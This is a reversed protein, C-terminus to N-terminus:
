YRRRKDFRRASRSAVKVEPPRWNNDRKKKTMKPFLATFGWVMSDARDPSKLGMYGSTTLACLQDELEPFYGVHHIRAQEYLASIPEARRVKGRTATVMEFPLDPNKAQIVARVMDGGYNIEGIVRDACHRDYADNTIAAWEEPSYRGSLDELLYGHGNTGLACVVIGIEDSREDEPGSCGSPDVAVVVRLFDPLTDQQGLVRNQALLEETWLAGETDDAFRGLLFRNRAKEPLSDLMSLYEPDLNERNDAPNILYFGFNEPNSVPLKTMPDKKEVFRLYTWHKKSPPNFDYYAKLKLNATKQALRTLATVVSNWPIQSCENFYITAYEGGLIKEVREKDDLGGFWIESGNPLTMFWDTKNLMTSLPPLEPFCVKLVKPLTDNVIYHKVSNFRFRFIVHRSEASKLARMVAARVLLFTKGSRSGGGLACHTADSVMMDMARDQAPTLHFKVAEAIPTLAAAPMNV